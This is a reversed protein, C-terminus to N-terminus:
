KDWLTLCDDSLIVGAYHDYTTKPDEHRLYQQAVYLGHKTAFYAGCIKRLEHLPKQVQLGCVDKLFASAKTSITRPSKYRVVCSGYATKRDLIRQWQTKKMVTYGQRGKAVFGHANLVEIKVDDPSSPSTNNVWFTTLASIESCRLGGYFALALISYIEGGAVNEINWHIQKILAEPPCQWKVKVRKFQDAEQIAKRVDSFDWTPEYGKYAALAEKTFMSKTARLVSNFTRKRAPSDGGKLYNRKAKWVLSENVVAIRENLAQQKTVGFALRIMRVLGRRYDKATRPKIGLSSSVAEHVKLLNKVSTSKKTGNNASYKPHFKERVDEIPYVKLHDRIDDARKMARTADVGLPFYCQRKDVVVRYRYGTPTKSILTGKKTRLTRQVFQRKTSSM